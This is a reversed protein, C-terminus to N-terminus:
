KISSTVQHDSLIFYKEARNRSKLVDPLKKLAAIFGLIMAFDKALVSNFLHYPTWLISKLLQIRDSNKWAFIFQNRYVIKKVNFPKFKSKIVGKEHEHRVVSKKEFVIKFGSKLARYSMDIDEWYFPDYLEDLGGLKDWISKRFAGSGGSVWLTESSLDVDAASHVLFGKEWKGKGRGRFVTKEKEISEDLCGVAFVKEDDFHPVLYEIFYRSPVVDTNLLILIDGNAAKVGRNVNTSFGKNINATLLIIKTESKKNEGIFKNIVEISNDTSNDDSIIIETNKMGSSSIAELVKPLNKGLIEEGNYNPIVVSVKM